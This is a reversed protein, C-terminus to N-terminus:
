AAIAVLLFVSIPVGAVRGGGLHSLWGIAKPAIVSANSFVSFIPRPRAGGNGPRAHHSLLPIEVYADAGNAARVAVGRGGLLVAVPTIVGSSVLVFLLAVSVAMIPVMSLDIGRGIVVTAMGIGLIGLVAVNRVLNIINDPSLFGPLFISLAFFMAAALLAVITAQSWPLGRRPAATPASTPSERVLSM